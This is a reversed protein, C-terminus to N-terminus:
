EAGAETVVAAGVAAERAEAGAEVVWAAVARAAVAVGSDEVAAVAAEGAEAGAEVTVGSDEGAGAAVLVVAETIVAGERAEVARAAM